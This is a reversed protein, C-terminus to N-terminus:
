QIAVRAVVNGRRVIGGRAGNGVARISRTWEADDGCVSCGSCSFNLM